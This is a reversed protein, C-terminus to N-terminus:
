NKEQIYYLKLESYVIKLAELLDGDNSLIVACDYLGKWSDNVLHVALRVDTCKEETKLVNV